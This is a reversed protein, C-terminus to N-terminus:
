ISYEVNIKKNIQTQNMLYNIQYFTLPDYLNLTAIFNSNFILHDSRYKWFRSWNSSSTNCNITYNKTQNNIKWVWPYALSEVTSRLHFRMTIIHNLATPLFRFIWLSKSVQLNKYSKFDIDGSCSISLISTIKMVKDFLLDWYMQPPSKFFTSKQDHVISRQFVKISKLIRKLKLVKETELLNYSQNTSSDSNQSYRITRSTASTLNTKKVM